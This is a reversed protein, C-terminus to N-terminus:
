QIGKKKLYLIGFINQLIHKKELILARVWTEQMTPLRKVDSGGPFGLVYKFM